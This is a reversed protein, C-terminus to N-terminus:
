GAAARADLAAGLEGRTRIDLKSFVHGLHTEVTKRTVFLTQAIEPNSYGAAALRAVRLESATLAEVGFLLARRPRAGTAALEDRARDVLPTAGCRSALDLAARLHERGAARRNARRLAAGLELEARAQEFRHGGNGLVEVAEALLRLGDEGQEVMGAARLAMGLAWPAGFRRAREVGPWILESAEGRRGCAMLAPAVRARWPNLSPNSWGCEELQAGDRLLRGIGEETRGRALDLEGLVIPLLPPAALTCSEEIPASWDAVAVAEDYAGRATLVAILVAMAWWHLFAANVQEEVRIRWGTRADSEAELLEGVRLRMEARQVYLTAEFVVMGSRLASHGRAHRPLAKPDDAIMSSMGLGSSTELGGDEEIWRYEAARVRNAFEISLAASWQGTRGIGLAAAALLRRQGPTQGRMAEAREIVREWRQAWDADGLWNAAYYDRTAELLLRQEPDAALALAQESARVADTPRGGLGLSHARWRHAFLTITPDGTEAAHALSEASAVLDIGALAQGLELWIAARDAPSPPEALARRLYRAASEPAAATRASRAAERLWEVVVPDGAPEVAFAQAAIREVPAAETALLEAARRHLRSRGGPAMRDYVAARALPHIFEFPRADRLIAARVLSGGNDLVVELPLDALACVHRPEADTGLVSVAEAVRTATEGLRDLRRVVSRSVGESILGSVRAANSALPALEDQAVARLLESVFFPNGGTAAACARVFEADGDSGLERRVMEGVSREGLPALGVTAVDADSVLAEILAQEAGPEDPRAAALMFVPLESVRAAAYALFRLSEVDAWHADDFAVFLPGRESLGALLWYLGHIVRRPDEVDMGATLVGLAAAAAGGAVAERAVDDLRAVASGFLQRAGGFPLERELERGRAALVSLGRGAALEAATRLLTTKGLGASALVLVGSGTGAAAGALCERLRAVESERELLRWPGVAQLKLHERM